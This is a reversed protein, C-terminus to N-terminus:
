PYVDSTAGWGLAKGSSLKQGAEVSRSGAAELSITSTDIDAQEFTTVAQDFDPLNTSATLIVFGLIVPLFLQVAQHLNLHHFFTKMTNHQDIETQLANENM